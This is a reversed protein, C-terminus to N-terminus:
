ISLEATKLSHIVIYKEKKEKKKSTPFGELQVVFLKHFERAWCLVNIQLLVMWWCYDTCNCQIMVYQQM